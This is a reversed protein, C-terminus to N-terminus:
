EIRFQGITIKVKDGILGVRHLRAFEREAVCTLKRPELVGHMFVITGHPNNVPSRRKFIDTGICTHSEWNTFVLTAM